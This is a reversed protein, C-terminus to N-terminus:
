NTCSNWKKDWDKAVAIVRDRAGASFFFVQLKISSAAGFNPGGSLLSKKSKCGRAVLTMATLLCSPSFSLLSNDTAMFTNQWKFFMNHFFVRIAKSIVSLRMYFLHGWFQIRWVAGTKTGHLYSTDAREKNARTAGTPNKLDKDVFM